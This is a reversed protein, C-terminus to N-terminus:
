YLFKDVKCCVGGERLAVVNHSHVFQGTKTGSLM